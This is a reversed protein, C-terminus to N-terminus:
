AIMEMRLGRADLDGGLRVSTGALWRKATWVAAYADLVDDVACKPPRALLRLELDTFEKKLLALREERGEPTRKYHAMPQGAMAWFCVEPHVEVVKSQLEANMISDVDAIKRLINFLQKSVGKGCAGVSLACAEEYSTAKLVARVPAPFVSNARPGLKRRAEIDCPRPYSDSLGIPIDIGVASLKGADIMALVPDVGPVVQVATDGPGDAPATVLVWGGACGDMGGVM